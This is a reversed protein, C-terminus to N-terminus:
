IGPTLQRSFYFDTLTILCGSAFPKDSSDPKWERRSDMCKLSFGKKGMTKLLKDVEEAYEKRSGNKDARVISRRINQVVRCRWKM